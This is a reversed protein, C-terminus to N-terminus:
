KNPENGRGKEKIAEHMISDLLNFKKKFVEKRKLFRLYKWTTKEQNHGMWGMLLDLAEVENLGAELLDSLRYTAYTSRLDHFRHKFSPETKRILQRLDAWRASIVQKSVPNGQESIFLPEFYECHKFAEMKLQTLSIKGSNIESIKKSLKNLRKLRRESIAYNQLKVLLEESIEVHRDKGYKTKVGMSVHLPIEYHHTSETLPTAATLAEITFTSVEQIRLGCQIALLCQLKFEESLEPLYKTLLTVSEQGLPSLSHVQSDKAVRIRLDSSDVSFTPSIHALVGSNQIRIQEIIFPAEKENKICLYREHIAWLYFSKVHNIYINATSQKLSGEHIKKLLYSRFLYTPKLRKIPPFKDWSLNQDELFTWYKLLARSYSSLDKLKYVTKLDFIYSNVISIFYGNKDYLTPLPGLNMGSETLVTENGFFAIETECYVDAALILKAM